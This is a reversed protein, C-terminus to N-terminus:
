RLRMLPKEVAVFVLAAMCFSLVITTCCLLCYKGFASGASTGDKELTFFSEGLVLIYGIAIFQVLYASYSLKAFPVWFWHSLFGRLPTGILDRRSMALAKLIFLACGASFATRGVVLLFLRDWSYEQKKKKIGELSLDTSGGPGLYAVICWLAVACIDIFIEMIRGLKDLMVEIKGKVFIWAVMMGLFYPSARMYTKTYLCTLSWEYVHETGM